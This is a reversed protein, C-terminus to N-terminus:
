NPEVQPCLKSSESWKHRRSWNTKTRFLTAESLDAESLNQEVLIAGSELNAKSLNAGNFGNKL